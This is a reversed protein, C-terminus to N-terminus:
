KWEMLRFPKRLLRVATGKAVTSNYADVNKMSRGTHMPERAAGSISSPQWHNIFISWDNSGSIIFRRSRYGVRTVVSM